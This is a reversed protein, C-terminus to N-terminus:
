TKFLFIMEPFHYEGAYWLLDKMIEEKTYLSVERDVLKEKISHLNTGNRYIDNLKKAAHPYTPDDKQPESNNFLPYFMGRLKPIVYVCYIKLLGNNIELDV